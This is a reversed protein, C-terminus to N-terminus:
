FSHFTFLSFHFIGSLTAGAQQVAVKMRGSKGKWKEREVKGKGSEVKWKERKV